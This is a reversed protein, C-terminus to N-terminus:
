HLAKVLRNRRLTRGNLIRARRKKRSSYYARGYIFMRDVDKSKPMQITEGMAFCALVYFAGVILLTIFTRTTMHEGSVTRDFICGAM